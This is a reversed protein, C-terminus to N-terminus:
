PLLRTRHRRNDTDAHCHERGYLLSQSPIIQPCYRELFPSGLGSNQVSYCLVDTPNILVGVECWVGVGWM